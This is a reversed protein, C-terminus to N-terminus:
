RTNERIQRVRQVATTLEALFHDPDEPSVIVPLRHRRHIELAPGTYRNEWSDWWLRGRLARKGQYMLAGRIGQGRDLRGISDIQDLRIQRYTWRNLLSLELHTPSICYRRFRYRMVGGVLGITIAAGIFIAVGILQLIERFTGLLIVPAQEVIVKPWWWLADEAM